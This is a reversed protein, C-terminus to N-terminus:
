PTGVHHIKSVYLFRQLLSSLPSPQTAPMTRSIIRPKLNPNLSQSQIPILRSLIVIHRPHDIIYRPHLFLRVLVFQVQMNM